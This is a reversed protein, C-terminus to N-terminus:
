EGRFGMVAGQACVMRHLHTLFRVIQLSKASLKGSRKRALTLGQRAWARVRMPHFPFLICVLLLKLSCERPANTQKSATM